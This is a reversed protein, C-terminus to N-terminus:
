PCSPPPGPSPGPSQTTYPWQLLLDEMHAGRALARIAGMPDTLKWGGALYLAVKGAHTEGEPLLSVEAAEGATLTLNHLVGYAHKSGQKLETTKDRYNKNPPLRRAWPSSAEKGYKPSADKGYAPSADKSEVPSADKGYTPSADKSEVPSADKGAEPLKVYIRSPKGMGQRRRSILDKEELSRLAKKVATDSRGIGKALELIPFFLFVRGESDKWGDNQGSLRARDLLLMYVSLETATLDLKLLERPFILYAPMPTTQTIYHSM